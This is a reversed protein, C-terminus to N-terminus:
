VPSAIIDTYKKIKSAVSMDVYKDGISVVMGGILASDVKATLQITQNPKLFAKLANELQKRQGDDLPKATKVECVVEGREAAMILSFANIIGDLRGLRGNEALVTLLNGTAANFKVKAAVDKLAAAKVNRKTTPDRLLDRVKPDTRMQNQLGKLDKEVADLAKTKSAASYLACAYRGELGFVQVPPKVLQAAASSTSLQRAHDLIERMNQIINEYFALSRKMGNIKKLFHAKPMQVYEEGKFIFESIQDDKVEPTCDDSGQSATDETQEIIEIANTSSSVPSKLTARFADKKTAKGTTSKTVTVPALQLMEQQADKRDQMPEPRMTSHAVRNLAVPSNTKSIKAKMEAIKTVPDKRKYAIPGPKSTSPPTHPETLCENSKPAKNYSLVNMTAIQGVPINKTATPEVKITDSPTTELEVTDNTDSENDSFQKGNDTEDDPIQTTEDQSEYEDQHMMGDTELEQVSGDFPFPVASHMLLTRRSSRSLYIDSFHRECLFRHMKSITVDPSVGAQRMWVDLREFNKPFAFFTLTPNSLSNNECEFYSCVKRNMNIRYTSM